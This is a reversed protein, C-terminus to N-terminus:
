RALRGAAAQASTSSRSPGAAGACSAMSRARASSRSVPQQKAIPSHCDPMLATATGNVDTVPSPTNTM